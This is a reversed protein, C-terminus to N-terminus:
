NAAIALSSHLWFELFAVRVPPKISNLNEGACKKKHKGFHPNALNTSPISSPWTSFFRQIKNATTLHPSDGKMALVAVDWQELITLSTWSNGAFSSPSFDPLGWNGNLELPQRKESQLLGKKGKTALDGFSLQFHKQWLHGGLLFLKLFLAHFSRPLSCSNVLHCPHHCWPDMVAPIKRHSNTEIKKKKLITM